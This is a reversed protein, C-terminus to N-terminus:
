TSQFMSLQWQASFSPSSPYLPPSGPMPCTQSVQPQSVSSSPTVQTITLMPKAIDCPMTSRQRHVYVRLHICTHLLRQGIGAVDIPCLLKGTQMGVFVGWNLFSAGDVMGTVFSTALLGYDGYDKVVPGVIRRRSFLGPEKQAYPAEALSSAHSPKESGLEQNARATATADAM